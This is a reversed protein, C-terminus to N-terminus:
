PATYYVCDYQLYKLSAAHIIDWDHVPSRSRYQHRRHTTKLTPHSIYLTQGRCCNIFHSGGISAGIVNSSSPKCVSSRVTCCLGIRPICVKWHCPCPPNRCNTFTLRATSSTIPNVSIHHMTPGPRFWLDGHSSTVRVNCQGKMERVKQNNDHASMLWEGRYRRMVSPRLPAQSCESFWKESNGDDTSRGDDRM